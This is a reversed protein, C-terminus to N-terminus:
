VTVSQNNFVSLVPFFYTLTLAIMSSYVMGMRYGFWSTFKPYFFILGVLQIPSSLLYVVGIKSSDYSFGGSQKPNLLYLPLTEDFASGHIGLIAYLCCPIMIDWTKFVTWFSYNNNKNGNKKAKM